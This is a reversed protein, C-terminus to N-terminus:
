APVRRRLRTGLAERVIGLLVAADARVAPVAIALPIVLVVPAVLGVLLQPVPGAPQMLQVAAFAVTALAAAVVLPRVTNVLLARAAGIAKAAGWTAPILWEIFLGAAAGWAVGATGQLAGLVIFAIAVPQTVVTCVLYTRMAGSSLFMWYYVFGLIQFLGGVCLIRFLPVTQTWQPGLVVSTLPEALGIMMAFGALGVYGTVLQLKLLRRLYTRRDDRVQSLAGVALNTFPALGQTVPQSYLQFAKAYLGLSTAGFLRGVLIKDLNSSVYSVVQVALLKGGFGLFSRIEGFGRPRSPAWRGLVVLAVLMTFGLLVAQLVLAWAGFGIAALVIAAGLSVGQGLLDVVALDRFRGSRTLEVRYQAGAGNLAFTLAAVCVLPALGPRGYLQAVVPSAACALVTLAAGIVTNAWFLDSRQERSIATAQIAALSLGFDRFLEGIGVVAVIMAYVGFDEPPLLRSLVVLSVVSVAVKGAQSASVFGANRASSM